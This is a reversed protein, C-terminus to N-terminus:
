SSLCPLPKLQSVKIWDLYVDTNTSVVTSGTELMFSVAAYFRDKFEKYVNAESFDAGSLAKWIYITKNKSLTEIFTVKHGSVQTGQQQQSLLLSRGTVNVDIISSWLENTVKLKYSIEYEGPPLYLATSRWFDGVPEVNARHLLVEISDSDANRVVEGNMLTLAEYDLVVVYPEFIVPPGNYGRKLLIVGDNAAYVGYDKIYSLVITSEPRSTVFDILVFDVEHLWQQLTSNFSTGPPYFSGLPIIFSNTRSSVLPFINGQTLIGANSPVLSLIDMVVRSHATIPEIGYTLDPWNGVHLGYLPSSLISFILVFVLLFRFLTRKRDFSLRLSLHFRRRLADAQLIKMTFTGITKLRCSMELFIGGPSSELLKKVGFVSGVFVGPLLFAPYQNGVYYFASYNSLLAVTLWPLTMILSKPNLFSLFMTSGFLIITYGLKLPLDYVLAALARQPSLIAQLPVSLTGDAGLISWQPAGGKVMPNSPSFFSVVQLAVFFWGVALCLVILPYKFYANTKRIELHRLLKLSNIVDSKHMWLLYISSMLILVAAHETTTLTLVTFLVYKRWDGRLGYYISFLFMTPFFAEPHFDFWNIGQLMPNLLYAAAFLIGWSRAKLYHKALWYVPFAGLALVFSKLVLLTPPFPYFAYIPLLFLLMPTFHVGMMSGGTVPLDATYYLLGYGRLTTYLAQNYNGLDYAYTKLAYIRLVTVISFVLTYLLVM